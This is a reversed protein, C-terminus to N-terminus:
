RQLAESVSVPTPKSLLSLPQLRPPPAALSFDKKKKKGGPTHAATAATGRKREKDSSQNVSPLVLFSPIYIRYLM